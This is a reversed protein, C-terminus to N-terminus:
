SDPNANKKRWSIILCASGVIAFSIAVMYMNLPAPEVFEPFLGDEETVMAEEPDQPLFSYSVAMLSFCFLLMGLYKLRPILQKEITEKDM